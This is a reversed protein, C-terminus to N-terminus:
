CQRNPLEGESVEDLLSLGQKRLRLLRELQSLGLRLVPGFGQQLEKLTGVLLAVLTGLHFHQPVVQLHGCIRFNCVSNQVCILRPRRLEILKDLGSSIKAQM